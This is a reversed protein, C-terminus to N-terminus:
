ETEGNGAADRAFAEQVPIAAALQVATPEISHATKGARTPAVEDPHM